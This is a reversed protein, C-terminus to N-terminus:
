AGPLVARIGDYRRHVDGPRGATEDFTPAPRLPKIRGEHLRQKLYAKDQEAQILALPLM